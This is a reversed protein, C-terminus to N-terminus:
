GRTKEDYLSLNATIHGLCAAAATGDIYTAPEGKEHECYIVAIKRRFRNVKFYPLTRLLSFKDLYFRVLNELVLLFNVKGLSDRNKTRM